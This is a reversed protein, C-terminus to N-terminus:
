PTRRVGYGREVCCACSQKQLFGHGLMTTGCMASQWVMLSHGLLECSLISPAEIGTRISNAM